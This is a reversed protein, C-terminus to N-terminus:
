LYNKEDPIHTSRFLELTDCFEQHSIWLSLHPLVAVETRNLVNLDIMTWKAYFSNRYYCDNYMKCYLILIVLLLYNYDSINIFQQTPAFSLRHVYILIAIFDDITFGFYRIFYSLLRKQKTYFFLPNRIPLCVSIIEFMENVITCLLQEM